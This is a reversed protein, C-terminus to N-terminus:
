IEEINEAVIAMTIDSQMHSILYQRECVDANAYGTLVEGNTSHEASLAINKIEGRKALDLVTELVDVINSQPTNIRIIKAM